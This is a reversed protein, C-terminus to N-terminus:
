TELRDGLTEWFFFLFFTPNGKLMSADSNCGGNIMAQNNFAVLHTRIVQDSTIFFNV